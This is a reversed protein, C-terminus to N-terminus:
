TEDVYRSTAALALGIVLISALAWAWIPILPGGTTEIWGGILGVIVLGIVILGTAVAPRPKETRYSYFGAVSVGLGIVIAIGKIMLVAFGVPGSSTPFFVLPLVVILVGLVVIFLGLSTPPISSSGRYQEM